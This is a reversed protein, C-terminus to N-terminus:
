LYVYLGLLSPTRGLHCHCSQCNNETLQKTDMPLRQLGSGSQLPGWTLISPVTILIFARLRQLTGETEASNLPLITPLKSM